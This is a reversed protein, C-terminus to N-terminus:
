DYIGGRYGIRWVTVTDTPKSYRFIVRYDGTRIRFNGVLERKLPKAGSVAPWKELRDIISLIRMRIVVPVQVLQERAGDTIIVSAM